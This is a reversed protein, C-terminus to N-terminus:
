MRILVSGLLRDVQSHIWPHKLMYDTPDAKLV